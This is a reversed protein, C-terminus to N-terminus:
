WGRNALDNYFSSSLKDLFLYHLLVREDDGISISSNFDLFGFPKIDNKNRGLGVAIAAENIKNKHLVSYIMIVKEQTKDLVNFNIKREVFMNMTPDDPYDIVPVEIVESYYSKEVKKAESLKESLDHNSFISTEPKKSYTFLKSIISDFLTQSIFELSDFHITKTKALNLFAIESPELKKYFDEAIVYVESSLGLNSCLGIYERENRVERRIPHHILTFNPGMIIKDCKNENTPISEKTLKEIKLKNGKIDYKTNKKDDIFQLLKNRISHSTKISYIVFADEDLYTYNISDIIINQIIIETSQWKDIAMESASHYFVPEFIPLNKNKYNSTLNCVSISDISLASTNITGKVMIKLIPLLAPNENRIISDKQSTPSTPIVLNFAANRKHKARNLNNLDKFIEIYAEYAKQQCHTNIDNALLENSQSIRMKKLITAIDISDVSIIDSEHSITIIARNNQFYVKEILDWPYEFTVASHIEVPDFPFFLDTFIVKKHTSFLSDMKGLSIRLGDSNKLLISGNKIGTYIEKQVNQYENDAQEYYDQIGFSITFRTQGITAQFCVFTCLAAIFKLIKM